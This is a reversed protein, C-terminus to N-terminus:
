ILRIKSTLLAQMMGQKQLKLKQLKTELLSIEKDFDILASAINNQIEFSPIIIECKSIQPATLQPVGTSENNFEVFCNIFETVFYININDIPVLM